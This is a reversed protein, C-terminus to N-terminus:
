PEQVALGPDASVHGLAEVAEAAPVLGGLRGPAGQQDALAGGRAAAGRRAEGVQGQRSSLQGLRGVLEGRGVGVVAGVLGLWLVPDREAAERDAHGRRLAPDGVDAGLRGSGGGVSEREPLM